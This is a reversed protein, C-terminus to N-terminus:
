KAKLIEPSILAEIIRGVASLTGGMTGCAKALKLAEKPDITETTALPSHEVNEKFAQLGLRLIVEGAKASLQVFTGSEALRAAVRYCDIARTSLDLAHALHAQHLTIRAAFEHFIGYSRTHAIVINLNKLVYVDREAYGLISKGTRSCCFRQANHIGVIVYNLLTIRLICM